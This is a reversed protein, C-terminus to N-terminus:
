LLRAGSCRETARLGEIDDIEYDMRTNSRRLQGITGQEEVDLRIQGSLRSPPCLTACQRPGNVSAM